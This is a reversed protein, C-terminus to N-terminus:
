GRRENKWAEFINAEKRLRASDLVIWLPAIVPLARLLGVFVSNSCYAQRYWRYRMCKVWFPFSLLSNSFVWLGDHFLKRVKTM